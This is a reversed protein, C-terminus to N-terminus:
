TNIKKKICYMIIKIFGFKNMIVYSKAYINSLRPRHASEKELDQNLPVSKDEIMTTSLKM